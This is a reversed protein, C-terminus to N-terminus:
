RGHGNRVHRHRAGCPAGHFFSTGVPKTTGALLAYATNLDLEFNDPVDTAVCCRTFWSINELTDILRTFDYLDKLTSARYHGTDMDLTQM